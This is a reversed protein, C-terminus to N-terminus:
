QEALFSLTLSTGITSDGSAVVVQGDSKIQVYATSASSTAVTFQLYKKPRYGPPLIFVPTPTGVNGSIVMGAMRVVGDSNKQYGQFSFRSDSLAVWGNLLTPTIWGPADKDAKKQALVSVGHLAEAVGATLDSLQAKENAAVVGSIPVVPSKDLKLYNVSYAASLSGDKGSLVYRELGYANVTSVTARLEPRSDIYLYLLKSVKNKFPSNTIDNFYYDGSSNVFPKASERLVIGTGVEVVNDGESLTLCGESVVPEVTEKALRYLLNYPTYGQDNMITPLTTTGSGSVVGDPTPTGVGCYIKLWGKNQGDTRNYPTKWTTGTEFMKWGNFYSKIEDATPSYADGWGSDTNSISIILRGVGQFAQQDASSTNTGWAVRSLNAGNYKTVYASDVAGSFGDLQFRKFGTGTSHYTWGLSGGLVFKKWKELKFYQGNQEFLEDPESGDTPNAHLETQFALMSDERPKFPKPEAGLTLMPNKFTFKGAGYVFTSPNNIDTYSVLNLCQIALVSTDSPTTFTVSGGDSDTIGRMPGSGTALNYYMRGSESSLTYTTNPLVPVVVQNPYSTTDPANMELTYKDKIKAKESILPWEYFPPLLNSGHRIVYPNEVGVIGIRGNPNIETKGKISGLNFRADREASVVQLGPQLTIKDTDSTDLRSALGGINERMADADYATFNRAVEAGKSWSKVAGQFGREVETIKNGDKGAYRVTEATEDSGIVALNPADPLVSADVLTIETDTASIDAALETAPSNVKAAYMPLLESM